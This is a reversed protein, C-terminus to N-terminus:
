VTSWSMTPPKQNGVWHCLFERFRVIKGDRIDFVHVWRNEFQIGSKKDSGTEEGLVVVTEGETIFQRPVFSSFEWSKGLIDLFQQVGSRGKFASCKELTAPGNVVWEIDDACLALFGDVDGESFRKYVGTVIEGATEMAKEEREKRGIISAWRYQLFGGNKPSRAGCALSSPGSTKRSM